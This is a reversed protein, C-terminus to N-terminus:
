FTVACHVGATGRGLVPAFRTERRHSPATADYILAERHQKVMLYTGASTIWAAFGGAVWAICSDSGQCALAGVAAGAIASYAGVMPVKWWAERQTWAKEIAATPVVRPGDKGILTVSKEDSSALHGRVAGVGRTQLELAEGPRVRGNLPAWGGPAADLLVLRSPLPASQQASPAPEQAVAPPAVLWLLCAAGVSCARRFHRNDHM